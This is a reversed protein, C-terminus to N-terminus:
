PHRTLERVKYIKMNAIRKMLIQGVAPGSRAVDYKVEIDGNAMKFRGTLEWADIAAGSPLAFQIPELSQVAVTGPFGVFVDLSALERRLLNGSDKRYEDASVFDTTGDSEILSVSEDSCEGVMRTYEDNSSQCVAGCGWGNPDCGFKCDKNFLRLKAVDGCHFADAFPVSAYAVDINALLGQPDAVIASAQASLSFLAAFLSAGLRSGSRLNHM